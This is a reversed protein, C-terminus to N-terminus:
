RPLSGTLLAFLMFILGVVTMIALSMLGSLVVWGSTRFFRARWAAFAPARAAGPDFLISAALLFVYVVFMTAWVAFAGRILFWAGLWALSAAVALAWQRRAGHKGGGTPEM